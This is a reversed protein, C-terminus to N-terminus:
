LDQRVEEVPLEFNQLIIKHSATTLSYDEEAVILDNISSKIRTQIVGLKTEFNNSLLINM